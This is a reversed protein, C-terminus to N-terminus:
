FGGNFIGDLDPAPEIPTELNVNLGVRSAVGYSGVGFAARVLPSNNLMRELPRNEGSGVEMADILIAQAVVQKYLGSLAEGSIGDKTIRRAIRMAIKVAIADAMLVDWQSVDEIFAVYRIYAAADDTHLVNQEVTLFETKATWPEGNLDLFRLNDAPLQYRYSYGFEGVKLSEGALQTLKVRKICCSWRHSRMVEMAVTDFVALITRAKEDLTDLIDTITGSALYSLANNAVATKTIM